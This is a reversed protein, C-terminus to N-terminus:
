KVFRWKRIKQKKISPKLFNIIDNVEGKWRRELFYFNKDKSLCLTYKNKGMCRDLIIAHGSILEM